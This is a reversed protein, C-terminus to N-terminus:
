HAMSVRATPASAVPALAEHLIAELLRRSETQATTLHAELRDFVAMLEDVKAVIRDQEALPPLPFPWGAIISTNLNPQGMGQNLMRFEETQSLLYIYAFDNLPTSHFLRLVAVGDNMCGRIRSIKPVGLTAGSNTLLLDGPDIYRSRAAGEETLGGVTKMLYKGPDKTIERVTIWPIPGGFYRSDGAPRPSSGRSIEFLEQLGTWMWNAPLKHPPSKPLGEVLEKDKKLNGETTLKVKQAAIRKLLDPAPEDNPDQPVLKGCVALNLITQRLTLIQNPRITLRPLHQLHFRTQDRFTSAAAPRNLRHLSAAALRDRRSEREAQAAELRDCLAMLEDVKAVIRQQEALPPLPIVLAYIIPRSVNKMSLSTGSAKFAYYSRAHEAHNNVLRLFEKSCEAAIQLRVTKDSLTLNKPEQEVIVSKAVLESTNARSILFDGRRVKINPPPAVGPLLQKNQEPLFTDWSVASVKLVGWNEGSRPFSETKPSWGADSDNILEGFRVWQWGAPSEFPQEHEAIPHLPRKKRIKADNELKKTEAQIRKRLEYAPEDNRDQPVLKGRVALDLIFRRLRPIADPADVLRDFHALLRSPNM